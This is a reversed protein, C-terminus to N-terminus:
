ILVQIKYLDNEYSEIIDYMNEIEKDLKMCEIASIDQMSKNELEELLNELRELELILEKENM